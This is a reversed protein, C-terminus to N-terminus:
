QDYGEVSKSEKDEANRDCKCQSAVTGNKRNETMKNRPRGM